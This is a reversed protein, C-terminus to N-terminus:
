LCDFRNMKIPSDMEDFDVIDTSEEINDIKNM